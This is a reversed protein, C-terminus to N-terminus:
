PSLNPAPAQLAAPDSFIPHASWRVVVTTGSPSSDTELEGRIQRTLDRVLRLGLTRSTAPDIGAPFGPGDDAIRLEHSKEGAKLSVTLTGRARNSFAYKLANTVIENAILSLPVAINLEVTVPELRLVTRVDTGAPAHARMFMRVLSELHAAMDIKAFNGSEYLREHVAAMARVRNSTSVFLKLMAPDTIRRIQLNLLSSVIQLNNKVRHHIERLLVEKEKLSSQIQEEAAKIETIDTNTGFWKTIQGAADRVPVARGLHWRYTGDWRRLRFEIEYQTGNSVAASWLELCRALDGPHVVSKWGWELVDEMRCNFYDLVRQNVHDLTGDPRATWVQPPIAEFIARYREESERLAAQAQRKEGRVRKEELAREVATGLRAIRDKLLYDTAGLKMAEVATEEGLQGSVLIFPIDLGRERLLKLANLGNFRPLSYDALILEPAADLAALFDAETEVRQWQPDFGARRLHHLNLEADPASDEIILIRLPKSM